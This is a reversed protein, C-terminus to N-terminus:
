LHRLLQTKHCHIPDRRWAVQSIYALFVPFNIVFTGGTLAQLRFPERFIVYGYYAVVVQSKEFCLLWM